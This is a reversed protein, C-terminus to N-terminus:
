VQTLIYVGPHNRDNVGFVFIENSNFLTYIRDSRISPRGRLDLEMQGPALDAVQFTTGEKLQMIFVLEQTEAYSRPTEDDLLWDPAGGVKSGRYGEETIPVLEIPAYKIVERYGSQTEGTSTAFLLARFNTQYDDLFGLPIDANRLPGSLMEPILHDQDACSTCAFVCLTLGGLAHEVPLAVQFYFTQVAGCLGCTPVDLGPPLMPKGGIFSSARSDGPEVGTSVCLKWGRHM